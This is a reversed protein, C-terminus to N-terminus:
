NGRPRAELVDVAGVLVPEVSAGRGAVVHDLRRVEPVVACQVAPIWTRQPLVTTTLRVGCVCADFAGSAVAVCWMDCLPGIHHDRCSTNGVLFQDYTGGGPCALPTRCAYFEAGEFCNFLNDDTALSAAIPICETGTLEEGDECAGSGAAARLAECEASNWVSSRVPGVWYTDLETPWQVGVAKQLESSTTVETDDLALSRRRAIGRTPVGGLLRRSSALSSTGDDGSSDATISM